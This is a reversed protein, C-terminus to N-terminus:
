DGNSHTAELLLDVMEEINWRHDAIGAKIAPICRLTQHIRVFNHHFFTLTLSFKLIEGKKSFANTLRTFRRNQMQINLNQRKMYSTPIYEPDPNGTIVKKKM